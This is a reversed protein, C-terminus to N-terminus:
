IKNLLFKTITAVPMEIILTPILSIVIIIIIHWFAYIVMKFTSFIIPRRWTLILLHLITFHVMYASYSLKSLIEFLPLSLFRNLLEFYGNDCAYIIWCVCLSFLLHVTSIRISNELDYDKGFGNFKNICCCVYFGIISTVTLINAWIKNINAKSKKSIFLFYGLILGLFWPAARVLTHTYIKFQYIDASIGDYFRVMGFVSISSLFGFLAAFTLVLKPKTRLPILLFPSIIWLQMDLSLYWSIGFCMADPNAINQIYLLTNWLYTYCNSKCYNANAKWLPGSSLYILSVNILVVIFFVSSIRFYRNIYHKIVNFNQKKSISKMENFSLLVGTMVLFTDIVLESGVVVTGYISSHWEQYYSVNKIFQLNIVITHVVIALSFSIVRLGNMCSIQDCNPSKNIQLLKKGNTLLSFSTFLSHAPKENKLYLNVDYLSSAAVISFLVSFFTITAVAVNDYPEVEKTQCLTDTTWFTIQKSDFITIIDSVTCKNPVCVGNSLPIKYWDNNSYFKQTSICYKGLLSGDETTENTNICDDFPNLKSKKDEDEVFIEGNAKLMTLAWNEQQELGLVFKRLQNRCQLSINLNVIANKFIENTDNLLVDSQLSPLASFIILLITTLM